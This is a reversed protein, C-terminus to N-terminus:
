LAALFGFHQQRTFMVTEEAFVQTYCSFLLITGIIVHFGHFGTIMFFISGYVSDNIHLNSYKYELYQLFIFLLAMSITDTIRYIFGQRCGRLLCAHAHTLFLGSSLLLITNVAALICPILAVIGFPPWTSGIWVSPSTSYYFYAFFFPFFFM